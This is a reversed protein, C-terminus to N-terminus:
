INWTICFHRVQRVQAKGNQGYQARTKEAAVLGLFQSVDSQHGPLELLHFLHQHSIFFRRLISCLNIKKDRGLLIFFIAELQTQSKIKGM